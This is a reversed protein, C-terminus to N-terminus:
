RASINKIGTGSGEFNAKQEHNIIKVYNGSEKMWKWMKNNECRFFLENPLYVVMDGVKFDATTKM